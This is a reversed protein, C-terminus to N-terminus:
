IHDSVCCLREHISAKLHELMRDVLPSLHFSAKGVWNALTSRDLEIGSRAFIGAQRYLPCHDGYKTMLVHAILAETPMGGEILHPPSPAQIVGQACAKCAYGDLM